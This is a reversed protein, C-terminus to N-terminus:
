RNRPYIPVSSGVVEHGLNKLIGKASALGGVYRLRSSPQSVDEGGLAAQPHLPAPKEPVRPGPPQAFADLGAKPVETGIVDIQILDSDRRSCVRLRSRRSGRVEDPLALDAMGTNGVVIHFPHVRERLGPSELRKLGRDGTSSTM